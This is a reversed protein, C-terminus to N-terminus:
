NRRRGNDRDNDRDYRDPEFWAAIRYRAAGGSPDRLRIVATYRNRANPQEIVDVKGRGQLVQIGVRGPRNPLANVVRVNRRTRENSGVEIVSARRGDIRIRIERDVQGQWELIQGRSSRQDNRNRGYQAAASVSSVALALPLSAALIFRAVSRHRFTRMCYEM